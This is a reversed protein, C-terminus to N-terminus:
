LGAVSPSRQARQVRAGAQEGSAQQAGERGGERGCGCRGVREEVGEPRPRGSAQPGPLPTCRWRRRCPWLHTAPHTCSRTQTHTHTHTPPPPNLQQTHTHASERGSAGGWWWWGVWGGVEVWAGAGGHLEATAKPLSCPRSGELGRLRVPARKAPCAALGSTQKPHPHHHKHTPPHAPPPHRPTEDALPRRRAGEAGRRKVGVRVHARAGVCTCALVREVQPQQSAVNGCAGRKHGRPVWGGADGGQTRAQPTPTPTPTSRTHSGPAVGVGVCGGGMGGWVWRQEREGLGCGGVRRRGGGGGGGWAWGGGGAQSAHQARM